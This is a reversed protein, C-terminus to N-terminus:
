YSWEVRLAVTQFSASNSNLFDHFYINEFELAVSTRPADERVVVGIGAKLGTMPGCNRPSEVWCWAGAVVKLTPFLGRGGPAGAVAAAHMGRLLDVGAYAGWVHEHHADPYFLLGAVASRLPGAGADGVSVDLGFRGIIHERPRPCDREIVASVGYGLFRDACGAACALVAFAATSRLRALTHRREKDPAAVQPGNFPGSHGAPFERPPSFRGLSGM